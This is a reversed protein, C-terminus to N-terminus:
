KECANNKRMIPIAFIFKSGKGVESEVWIAGGHLEVFKKCLNLGLGTGPYKRTITTELQQFPQFLKTIDEPKIGPGTDAVSIEISSPRGSAESAIVVSSQEKEDRTGRGEDREVRRARVRVSGGEPTYKFANSLLNVLIQKIKMEDAIITELAEEVAYEVHIGHKLSKEKFMVLCREILDKVWFESPELEMKGAEVKSLDLIDNILTLLHKGSSEINRLFDAQEDTVPDSMGDALISSFGIIANLPTRLEHSMNALFDSKARNAYEATQKADELEATRERIKQELTEAYERLQRELESRETVDQITGVMRVPKGNADFAVGGEEHVVRVVGDPLVVRRDINFPRIGQVAERMAQELRERDDPHVTKMLAEYNRGFGGPEFGFIRDMEESCYAKNTVIDWDWNGLHAIRQANMLSAQNKRLIDETIKRETIDTSIGCIAYPAGSSDNLTFKNSIYTHMGDAHPAVEEFTMTTQKAIVERDNLRFADAMEKPFVDHDTKGIINEAGIRFLSEFKNNLLVYRGEMDKVYIVEPANNIIAKLRAENIRLVDELRRKETIDRVIGRTGIIRGNEVINVPHVQIYATSKDVREIPVDLIGPDRGSEINRMFDQRLADRHEPPTLEIFSKGVLDDAKEYGYIRALANNAFTFTGRDDMVFVGDNIEEILSRYKIESARLASDAQKLITIDRAISVAAIVRGEADRVPSTTVFAPYESGDKRRLMLEGFWGKELTIKHIEEFPIVNDPSYALSISQGIIEEPSYGFENFAMPNLHTIRGETDTIGIADTSSDLSQALMAVQRHNIANQRAVAIMDAICEYLRRDEDSLKMEQPLYLCLIGIQKDRSKLPLIIHGHEKAGAYIKTHRADHFNNESMILQEQEAAIGCLCEGFPVTDCGIVQEDGFNRSAVLKLNKKDRDGIFIAGKKELALPELSLIADMIKGAMVDVSLSGSAARSITNLVDLERLKRSKEAFLEKLSGAMGNFAAGLTGIEDNSQMPAQVDFDGDQLRSAVRTLLKMPAVINKRIYLAILLAVLVFTSVIMFRKQVFRRLDRDYNLELAKVFDNVNNVFIPIRNDYIHILAWAKEEPADIPLAVVKKLSPKLEREWEERVKEFLPLIDRYQSIPKTNREVSGTTLEQILADYKQIQTSLGAQSQTRMGPLFEEEAFKQAYWAMMYARFRLQGAANITAAEGAMNHTFNVSAFVFVSLISVITLSVLVYKATLSKFKLLPM